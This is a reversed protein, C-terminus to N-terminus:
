YIVRMPLYSGTSSVANTVGGTFASLLTQGIRQGSFIGSESVEITDYPQLVFDPKLNKKIAAVDVHITEQEGTLKQRYVRVDSTKAAKSPGGVMAIARSLTLHESMYLGQPAVVAGTIYVPEAETVLIYDGPRIIPNARPKNRRLDSISVVKLQPNM